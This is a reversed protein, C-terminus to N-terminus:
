IGLIITVGAEESAGKRQDEEREREREREREAHRLNAVAMLEM